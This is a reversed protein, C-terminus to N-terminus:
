YNVNSEQFSNEVLNLQIQIRRMMLLSSYDMLNLQYDIIDIDLYLNHLGHYDDNLLYEKLIVFLNLDWKHFYYGKVKNHVNPAIDDVHVFYGDFYMKFILERKKKDM